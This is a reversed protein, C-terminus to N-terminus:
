PKKLIITILLPIEINLMRRDVTYTTPELDGLKLCSFLDGPIPVLNSTYTIHHNDFWLYITHM